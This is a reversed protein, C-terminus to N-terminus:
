RHITVDQGFSPRASGVLAFSSRYWARSPGSAVSARPPAARQSLSFHVRRPGPRALDPHFYADASYAAGIKVNDLPIERRVLQRENRAMLNHSPPGFGAVTHHAQPDALPDADCPELMYIAGALEASASALVQA